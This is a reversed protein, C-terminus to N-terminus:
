SCSSRRARLRDFDISEALIQALPQHGVPNLEYPSVLRAMLDMAIFIPSYDLTWSGAGDRATRAPDPEDAPTAVGRALLTELAERAGDAGGDAYGDVLVAANM